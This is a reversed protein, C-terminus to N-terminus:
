SINPCFNEIFILCKHKLNKLYEEKNHFSAHELIILTKAKKAAFESAQNGAEVM